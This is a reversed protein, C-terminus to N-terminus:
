LVADGILKVALEPRLIGAGATLTMVVDTSRTAAMRQTEMAVAGRQAIGFAGPAFVCGTADDSGDVTVGAHELITVGSITGVYGTSLVSNGAATNATYATTATLAAKIGYAQKPNVLAFLQGNYKNSRILAAAKM